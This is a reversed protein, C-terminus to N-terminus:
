QATRYEATHVVAQTQVSILVRSCNGAVSWLRRKVVSMGAFTCTKGKVDSMQSVSIQLQEQDRM